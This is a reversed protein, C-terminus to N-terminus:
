PLLGRARAAQLAEARNQINLKHFLKKLHFKVTNETMQLSRAIVKNSAGNALEVLVELERNSLSVPGDPVSVVRALVTAANSLVHRVRSSSAQRRSWKWAHQLMPLLVRGYDILFQTDDERVCAELHPMFSAIAADIDGQQVRAAARLTALMRLQRLRSGAQASQELDDLVVIADASRGQLLAALVLVVGAEHHQRWLSPTTRWAGAEWQVDPVIPPMATEVTDRPPTTLVNTRARFAKALQALAHLERKSAMAHMREILLKTEVQDGRALANSIAVDYAEAYIEPWGDGSEMQRLSQSLREASAAVEGRGHLAVALYADALAKLGSDAGFNEEALAAAERLTAEAERREGGHLQALGLHFLLYNVGLVSGIARMERVARSSTELAAQMDGIGFAVMCAGNLLTARGVGDTFPLAEYERFLTDLHERNLSTGTYGLVVIAGVLLLDRDLAADTGRVHAQSIREFLRMGSAVDGDKVALYAQLLQVRPFEELRDAPLSDLLARMLSIGGFLVVEWAGTREILAAARPIDEALVAHRVAERMRGNREYWSAARGHLGCADIGRDRRKARLYDLLLHHLRFWYREEDLPVLFHELQGGELLRGWAQPNGTVAAVLEPNFSDLVAVEFLTAQVQPSLDHLVRETLYEAVESTRGSFADLVVSRDPRAELWLKALQLAVPWGETRTLLRALQDESLQPLLAAAEDHTFRLESVGIERLDGRARLSGRPLMSCDGGGYLFRTTFPAEVLLRVLVDQIATRELRHVDDIIITVPEESAALVGVLSRVVSPVPVDAFGHDALAELQGVELGSRAFAHVLMILLQAGTAEETGLWVVRKGASRLEAHRSALLWTKGYGAPADVLILRREANERLLERLRNREALAVRFVPPTTFSQLSALSSM